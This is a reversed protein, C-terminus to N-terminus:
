EYKISLQAKITGLCDIGHLMVLKVVSLPALERWFEFALKLFRFNGFGKVMRGSVSKGKGIM